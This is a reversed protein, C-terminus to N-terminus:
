LPLSLSLTLCHTMLTYTRTHLRVTAAPFGSEMTRVVYLEVSSTMRRMTTCTKLSRVM